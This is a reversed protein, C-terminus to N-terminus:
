ATCTYDKKPKPLLISFSTGREASTQCTIRGDLSEVLGAVISLGVGSHGPRRNPPLPKFLHQMVDPPLGPGTDNLSIEIYPRGNQNVNAHTSIIFCDGASMADAANNWLNTLIQKVSDRDCNVPKMKPDLSKELAIGRDAFLSDGYLMLMNEILSNVNLDSTTFCDPAQNNMKQLIAAVRDIEENLIDLEQQIGTHEPLKKRIISLYNKTISLPNGAEHVARRTQQEFRKTVTTERQQERKRIERWVELSNAALQAFSQMWMVQKELRVSQSSSVGCIMIGSCKEQDCLPIYLLGESGLIRAIQADALSAPAHLEKEFTSRPKNELAARAALSCHPDLPIEFRQLLAPQGAINAGSLTQTGPQVLLFAVHGLGFIIRVSERMHLFLEDESSFSLIDHQLTQLLAMNRVIDEEHPNPPDYKHPAAQNSDATGPLATPFTKMGTTEPIGLADAIQAVQNFCTRRIAFLDPVDIGLITSATTLENTQPFETSEQLDDHECLVHASWIIHSLTDATVIEDKPNHHFLIADAMFSPLKWQDVLWAGIAAHDTDINQRELDRLASEDGSSALLAGYRKETGVLLLLQGIDHLLGALYAEETDHYQTEVALARATEALRLSHGWFGNLEYRRKDIAPTFFNQVILCAALTRSLRTGLNVLCQSLNKSEMRRWAAPSNAVTLLRASLSPDQSVLTALDSITTREDDSLHLFKLLTQSISPLHLSEISELIAAPVQLM